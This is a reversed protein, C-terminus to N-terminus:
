VEAPPPVTLPPCVPKTTVQAEEVAKVKPLKISSPVLAPTLAVEEAVENKIWPLVVSLGKWTLLEVPIESNLTFVLPVIAIPGVM